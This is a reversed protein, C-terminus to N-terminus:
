SKSQNESGSIITLETTRSAVERAVEEMALTSLAGLREARRHREAESVSRDYLVLRCAQLVTRRVDMENALALMELADNEDVTHERYAKKMTRVGTSTVRWFSSATMALSSLWSDMERQWSNGYLHQRSAIQYEEAVFLVLMPGLRTSAADRIALEAAAFGSTEDDLYRVLNRAIRLRRRMHLETLLENSFRTSSEFFLFFRLQGVLPELFAAGLVEALPNVPTAAVDTDDVSGNRDYTARTEESSLVNYVKMLEQFKATANPDDPNKDPHMELAKRTYAKRIEATTATPTVGMFDYYSGSRSAATATGEAPSAPSSSASPSGAAAATEATAQQGNSAMKAAEEEAEQKHYAERAKAVIDEDSVPLAAFSAALDVRTWAQEDSDWLSEGRSAETVAAPTNSLGRWAQRGGAFVGYASLGGLAVAGVGVGKAFGALGEEVAGTYSSATLSALGLGIGTAVNRLADFLGQGAHKPNRQAFFDGISEAPPAASHAPPPSPPPPTTAPDPPSPSSMLRRRGTLILPRYNSEIEVTGRGRETSTPAATYIDLHLLISNSYKGRENAQILDHM